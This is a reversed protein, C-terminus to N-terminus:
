LQSEFFKHYENQHFLGDWAPSAWVGAVTLVGDSLTLTREAATGVNRVVVRHVKERMAAKGIEEKCVWGIATVLRDFCQSSLRELATLDSEFGEWEVAVEIDGGCAQKLDAQVQPLLTDTHQQILRREQLAM